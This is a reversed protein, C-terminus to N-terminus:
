VAHSVPEALKVGALTVGSSSSRTCSAKRLPLDLAATAAGSVGCHVAISVVCVFSDTGSPCLLMTQWLYESRLLLGCSLLWGRRVYRVIDYVLDSKDDREESSDGAPFRSGFRNPFYHWPVM